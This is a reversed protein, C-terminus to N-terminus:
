RVVLEARAPFGADVVRVEAGEVVDRGVRAAPQDDGIVAPLDGARQLQGHQGPQAPVAHAWSPRLSGSYHPPSAGADM